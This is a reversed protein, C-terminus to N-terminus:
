NKGRGRYGQEGGGNNGGSDGDGGGGGRDKGDGGSDMITTASGIMMNNDGEVDSLSKLSRDGGGRGGGNRSLSPHETKTM